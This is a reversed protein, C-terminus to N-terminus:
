RNTDAERLLDALRERLLEWCRRVHRHETRLHGIALRLVLRGDLRTHSLYAEGTRNVAELLQENLADLAEEPVGRPRARFCVTSFPVPAMREFDPDEDVWGAFERALAIHRRVMERLGSAGFMRLVMWLKLARFRRGLQIGYDMFNVADEEPTRLYEPVLSFARRLVEPRRTYFASCDIPVTLWKHPNVVLSDARECGALVHRKEPLIAAVGAYAADVHLWIGYRECIEAIEPVPDVSTTSTTGVTAVVGAPRWGARLDEEIAEALADPRMRFEGDVPIKRVGEQGFGLVIAGKEISSHAHESTYIRLRPLDPRGAMGQERIGLGLSERAAAMACLSAVSATDMIIGFRPPLGLLQRLWDLTVEELETAAPCTRWLMGNVNLAACLVEGLVGPASGTIAFYAFFGPHNWHTIGPLLIEQFDTFIREFPEPDEPPSPPLKERIEGPRVRALVPYRESHDLYDAIWRGLRELGQLFLEGQPRINSM